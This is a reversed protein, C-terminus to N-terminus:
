VLDGLGSNPKHGLIRICKFVTVTSYMKRVSTFHSVRLVNNMYVCLANISNILNRSSDIRMGKIFRAREESSTKYWTCDISSHFDHWVCEENV